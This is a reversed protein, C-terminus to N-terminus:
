PEWGVAVADWEVSALEIMVLPDIPFAFDDQLWIVRM